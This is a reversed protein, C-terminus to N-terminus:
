MQGPVAHLVYAISRAKDALTVGAIEQGRSWKYVVAGGSGGSAECTISEALNSTSVVRLYIPGGGRRIIRATLRDYSMLEAALLELDETADAPTGTMM